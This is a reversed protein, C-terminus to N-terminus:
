KDFCPCNKMKWPFSWTLDGDSKKLWKVRYLNSEKLASSFHYVLLKLLGLKFELAEINWSFHLAASSQFQGWWTLLLLLEITKKFKVLDHGGQGSLIHQFFLSEGAANFQYLLIRYRCNLGITFRYYLKLISPTQHLGINDIKNEGIFKM